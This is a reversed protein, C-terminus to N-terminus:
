VTLSRPMSISRSSHHIDATIYAVAGTWVLGKSFPKPCPQETALSSHAVYPLPADSTSKKSQSCTVDVKTTISM